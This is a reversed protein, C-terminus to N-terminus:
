VKYELLAKYPNGKLGLLFAFAPETKYGNQKLKIIELRFSEGKNNLIEHEILMHKYGNQHIVPLNQGFIEIEFEELIFNAVVTEEGDLVLERISFSREGGFYLKLRELFANKNEWYCIIDLDSNDIDINIPITGILVPEFAALSSLISYEKLVAYAQVQKPTGQKLYDINLFNPM